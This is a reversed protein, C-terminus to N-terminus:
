VSGSMTMVMSSVTRAPFIKGFDEWAQCCIRGNVRVAFAAAVGPLLDKWQCQRCIRSGREAASAEM